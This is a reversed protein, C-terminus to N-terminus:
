ELHKALIMMNLSAESMNGSRGGCGGGDITVRNALNLRM